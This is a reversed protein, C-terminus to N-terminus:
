GLVSICSDLGLRLDLSFARLVLIPYEGYEAAHASATTLQMAGTIACVLHRAFREDFERVAPQTRSVVSLIGEYSQGLKEKPQLADSLAKSLSRSASVSTALSCATLRAVLFRQDKLSPRFGAGHSIESRAAKAKALCEPILTFKPDNARFVEILRNVKAHDEELTSQIRRVLADEVALLREAIEDVRVLSDDLRAVV